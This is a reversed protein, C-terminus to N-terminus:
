ITKCVFCMNGVKEPAVRVARAECILIELVGSKPGSGGEGCILIEDVAQIKFILM